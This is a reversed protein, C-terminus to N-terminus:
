SRQPTAMHLFRIIFYNTMYLNAIDLSINVELHPTQYRPPLHFNSSTASCATPVTLIHIPKEVKIFTTAKGPCILTISNALASLPMTLIWVNPAIQSPMNIDSTKRVQLSCQASINKSPKKHIFSFYVNTSKSIAPFTYTHLLITWKCSPLSSFQTASLEVVM